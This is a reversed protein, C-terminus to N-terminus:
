RKAISAFGPQDPRQSKREDYDSSVECDDGTNSDPFFLLWLVFSHVWLGIYGTIIMGSIGILKILYRTKKDACENLDDQLNYNANKLIDILQIKSDSANELELQKQIYNEVWYFNDCNIIEDDINAPICGDPCTKNIAIFPDAMIINLSLIILLFFISITKTLIFNM